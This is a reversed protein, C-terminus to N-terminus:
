VELKVDGKCADLAAAVDADKLEGKFSMNVQPSWIFAILVKKSTVRVVTKNIQDKLFHLLDCYVISM